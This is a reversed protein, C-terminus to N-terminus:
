GGEVEIPRQATVVLPMHGLADRPPLQRLRCNAVAAIDDGCGM